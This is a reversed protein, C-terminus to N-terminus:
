LWWFWSFWSLLSLGWLAQFLYLLIWPLIFIGASILSIIVWRRAKYSERRAGDIDGNNWMKEVNGSHILAVIGTPLCCCVSLVAGILHTEPMTPNVNQFNNDM